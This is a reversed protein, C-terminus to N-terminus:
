LQSNLGVCKEIPIVQDGDLNVKINNTPKILISVLFYTPEEQLLQAILAEIKAIQLETSMNFFFFPVTATGKLQKM